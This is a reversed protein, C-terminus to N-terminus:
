GNTIDKWLSVCMGQRCLESVEKLKQSIVIRNDMPRRNKEM